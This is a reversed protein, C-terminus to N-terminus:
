CGIVLYRANGDPDRFDIRLPSDIFFWTRGPETAAEVLRRDNRFLPAAVAPAIVTPAALRNPLAEDTKASSSSCGPLRSGPSAAIRRKRCARSVMSASRQRWYASSPPAPGAWFPLEGM